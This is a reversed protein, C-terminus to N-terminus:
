QLKGKKFDIQALAGASSGSKEVKFICGELINKLVDNQLFNGLLLV